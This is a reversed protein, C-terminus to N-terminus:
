DTRDGEVWLLPAEIRKWCELAEDHRYLVPNVRKHAPDALLQWRGDDAQRSWQGALWQARPATLLPNTKSLRAAVADLSDYRRLEASTKLEDLWQRYRAPAQEARTPPMGFGELNVLRRIREPRVGAYLMAVNGGMS